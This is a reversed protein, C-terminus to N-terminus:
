SQICFTIFRTYRLVKHLVLKTQDLLYTAFHKLWMQVIVILIESWM